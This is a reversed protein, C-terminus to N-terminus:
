VRPLRLMMKNLENIQQRHAARAKAESTTRIVSTVKNRRGLITTKTVYASGEGKTMFEVDSIIDKICM